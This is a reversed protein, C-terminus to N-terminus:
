LAYRAFLEGDLEFLSRLTLHAPLAPPEDGIISLAGTSGAVIPFTTVFLEDILGAALLAANLRPGGECLIARVRTQERLRALAAGLDVGAPLRLYQVQARVGVIEA